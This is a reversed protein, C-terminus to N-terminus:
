QIRKHRGRRLLDRWWSTDGGLGLTLGGPKKMPSYNATAGDPRLGYFATHLPGTQADAHKIAWHNNSDGKVMDTLKVFSANIAKDCM